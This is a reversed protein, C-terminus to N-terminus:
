LTSEDKAGYLMNFVEMTTETYGNCTLQLEMYTTHTICKNVKDLFHINCHFINKCGTSLRFPEIMQTFEKDIYVKGVKVRSM